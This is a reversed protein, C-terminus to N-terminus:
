RTKHCDRRRRSPEIDNDFTIEYGAILMEEAAPSNTNGKGPKNETSTVTITVPDSEYLCQGGIM